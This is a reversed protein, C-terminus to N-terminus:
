PRVEVYHPETLLVLRDGPGAVVYYEEALFDRLVERRLPSKEIDEHELREQKEHEERQKMQNDYHGAIRFFPELDNAIKAEDYTLAEKDQVLREFRPHKAMASVLPAVGAAAMRGS